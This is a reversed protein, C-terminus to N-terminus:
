TNIVDHKNRSDITQQMLRDYADHLRQYYKTYGTELVDDEYQKDLKKISAYIAKM